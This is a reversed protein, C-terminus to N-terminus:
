KGASKAAAALSKIKGAGGASGPKDTTAKVKGWNKAPAAAAAPPRLMKQLEKLDMVGSGDPDATDFLEDIVKVPVEFGLKPMAQRFEKKSIEGDGNADWERFLDLVRIANKSLAEKLQIGLPRDEDFDVRGLIGTAQSKRRDEKEPEKKPAPKEAPPAAAIQVMRSKEIMLEAIQDKLEAITKQAESLQGSMAGRLQELQKKLHAEAQKRQEIVLEESAKAKKTMDELSEISAKEKATAIKTTGRESAVQSQLEAVQQQLEAMAKREDTLAVSDFAQQDEFDTAVKQLRKELDQRLQTENVLKEEISMSSMKHKRVVAFRNWIQFGRALKPRLLRQGVSKMIQMQRKRELHPEVWAQWGRSLERQAIRRIAIEKTHEV